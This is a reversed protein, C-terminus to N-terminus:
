PNIPFTPRAPLMRRGKTVYLKSTMVSSSRPAPDKKFLQHTRLWELFEAYKIYGSMEKGNLRGEGTGKRFCMLESLAENDLDKLDMKIGYWRYGTRVLPRKGELKGM